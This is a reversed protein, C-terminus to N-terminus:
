SINGRQVALYRGYEFAWVNTYFFFRMLGYGFFIGTILRKKNNSEYRTMLQISGDVIMPLMLIWCFLPSCDFFVLSIPCLVIGILEGTCRACIPFPQGKWYFSRERKQHCGFIIPLWKHITQKM